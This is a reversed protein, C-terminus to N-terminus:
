ASTSACAAGGPRQLALVSREGRHVRTVATSRCSTAASARRHHARRDGSRRRQSPYGIEIKFLFRDLQAEPLPYTGETEVPNQTALVM